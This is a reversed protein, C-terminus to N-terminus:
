AGPQDRPPTVLVKDVRKGDMDVVEFRWGEIEVCDATQPVRNLRAMMFGGVTTYDDQQTAFAPANTFDHAEDIQLMGDVLWSGDERRTVGPAEAPDPTPLMGVLGELIDTVTLLGQIDGYEDVVLALSASQSKLIELAKLAPVTEPIFLAPSALTMLPPLSQNSLLASAIDKVAVIGIVRELGGQVLPFRSVHSSRLRAVTEELPDDVDLLEIQTRPTMVAEVTKDGLRLAQEVIAREAEQFHGAEAGERMLMKVEEDALTSTDARKPILRLLLDTVTSLLWAFPKTATAILVMPPGLALGIREPHTLGIRKPVLEGLILTAFTIGVVTIGYAVAESSAGLSEILVADLREAVAAGGFVGTLVGILTIGIQVTSLFRTQDEQLALTVQAARNGRDALQKLRGRKASVIAMEAMAFLGNVLILALIIALEVAM